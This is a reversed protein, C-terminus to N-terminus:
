LERSDDDYPKHARHFAPTQAPGPHQLGTSPNHFCHQVAAARSNVVFATHTAVVHRGGTTCRCRHNDVSNNVAQPSVQCRPMPRSRSPTDEVRPTNDLTRTVPRIQHYPSQEGQRHGDNVPPERSDAARTSRQAAVTPRTSRQDAVPPRTSCRASRSKHVLLPERHVVAPATSLEAGATRRRCTQTPVRGALM